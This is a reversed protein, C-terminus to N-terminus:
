RDEPSGTAVGLGVPEVETDVTVDFKVAWIKCWYRGLFFIIIIESMGVSKNIAYLTDHQVILESVSESRSKGERCSVLNM